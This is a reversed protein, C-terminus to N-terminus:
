SAKNIRSSYAVWAADRYAIAESMPDVAEYIGRGVIIVDSGREAIVREPTDYQQGLADGGKAMRVGPTMHIFTADDAILQRQCIFGIVFDKHKRAWEVTTKTYEGTALSGASSMEALLLLGRGLPKGVEALGQIIGPGPLTHANTIHSWEAIHYVGGGYQLVVTNGIDAFKRDEFIVFRHKSALQALQVTFDPTFDSIVDVHTKLCCIFPGLQDAIRLLEACSSVDAAICLNTRKDAMIQFLQKATPNVALAARDEFSLGVHRAPEPPSPVPAPPLAPKLIPQQTQNEAIFNLTKQVIDADLRGAKHLVQLLRTITLVSHLRYGKSEIHRRGGQERDLLVIIDRIVLGEEELPGITEFVSIGSTVLDEIILTTDGKKFAGEIAKGTGYAKIEKRRVVM